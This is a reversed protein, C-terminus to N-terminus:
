GGGATDGAMTPDAEAPRAIGPLCAGLIGRPRWPTVKSLLAENIANIEADEFYGLPNSIPAQSSSTGASFRHGSVNRRALQHWEPRCRSNYCKQDNRVNERRVLVCRGSVFSVHTHNLHQM